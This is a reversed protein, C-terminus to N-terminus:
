KINLKKKIESIKKISTMEDITFKIKFKKEILLMLNLHNLLDWRKFSGIKLKTIDKKINEEPFIEKLCTRLKNEKM